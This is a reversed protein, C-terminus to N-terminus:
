QKNNLTSINNSVFTKCDDLNMSKYRPSGSYNYVVWAFGNKHSIKSTFEQIEGVKKNQLKISYCKQNGHAPDIWDPMKTFTVKSVNSRMAVM